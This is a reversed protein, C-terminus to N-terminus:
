PTISTRSDEMYPPMRNPYRFFTSSIKEWTKAVTLSYGEAPKSSGTVRIRLRQGKALDVKTDYQWVTSTLTNDEKVTVKSYDYYATGYIQYKIATQGEAPDEQSIFEYYAYGSETTDLRGEAATGLTLPSYEM